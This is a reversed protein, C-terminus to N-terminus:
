NREWVTGFSPMCTGLHSSMCGDGNSSPYWPFFGGVYLTVEGWQVMREGGISLCSRVVELTDLWLQTDGRRMLKSIAGNCTLIRRLLSIAFEVNYLWFEEVRFAEVTNQGHGEEGPTAM